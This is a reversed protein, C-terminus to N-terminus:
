AARKRVPLLLADGRDSKFIIPSYMPRSTVYAKADPLCDMINKLYAANVMPLGEGFDYACAGGPLKRKNIKLEGPTPVHLEAVLDTDSVWCRSLDIGAVTEFGEVPTKLRIAHYCDCVCQRGEADTWVGKLQPHADSANKIVRKLASYASGGKSKGLADKAMMYIELAPLADDWYIRDSAHLYLEPDKVMLGYLKNGADEDKEHVAVCARRLAECATEYLRENNIAMNSKGKRKVSGVALAPPNESSSPLGGLMFSSDGHAGRNKNNDSVSM